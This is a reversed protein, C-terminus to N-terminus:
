ENTALEGMWVKPFNQKALEIASVLNYYELESYANINIMKVEPRTQQIAQLKDKMSDFDWINNLSVFREQTDRKDSLYITFSRDGYMQLVVAATETKKDGPDQQDDALSAANEPKFNTDLAGLAIFSGSVLLYTLIVVLCDIIAALNIKVDHNPSSHIGKLSKM